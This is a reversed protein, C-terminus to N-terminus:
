LTEEISPSGQTPPVTTYPPPFPPEETSKSQADKAAAEKAELDAVRAELEAHEAELEDNRTKLRDAEKRALDREDQLAYFAAERAQEALDIASLKDLTARLEGVIGTIEKSAGYNPTSM